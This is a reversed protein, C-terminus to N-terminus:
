RTESVPLIRRATWYYKGWYHHDITSITVGKSKSAHAFESNNLYIGVHRPYGPPKFFVLDGPQLKGRSVFTGCKVQEQTTRPLDVKFADRYLKQVFGSCDVGKGSSGGMKHRTGRWNRFEHLIRKEVTTSEIPSSHRAIGHGDAGTRKGSTACSAATVMIVAAALICWRHRKLWYTISLSIMMSGPLGM